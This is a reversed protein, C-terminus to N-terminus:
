KFKCERLKRKDTKDMSATNVDSFTKKFADRLEYAKAEMMNARAREKSKERKEQNRHMEDNVFSHRKQGDIESLRNWIPLMGWEVPTGSDMWNDTLSVVHFHAPELCHITIGDVDYPHLQFHERMIQQIGKYNKQVFLKEDYRKVFQTLRTERWGM